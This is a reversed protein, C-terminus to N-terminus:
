MSPCSGGGREVGGRSSHALLSSGGVRWGGPMCAKHIVQPKGLAFHMTCLQGVRESVSESPGPESARAEPGDHGPWGMLGDAM